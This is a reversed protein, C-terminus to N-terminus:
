KPTIQVKTDYKGPFSQNAYSPNMGIGLYLTGAKKAVITLKSGVKFEPGSDGIRGVLVGAPMDQGRYLGYNPSGDPGSMAGSGWPTMTISGEASIKLRDGVEVRIKTNKWNRGAMNSGEVAITRRLEEKALVTRDARKIDGLAVTLQGFKSAIAFQKQVVKGVVTFDTTVITDLKIMDANAAADEEDDGAEEFGEMLTKIRRVREANDDGKSRADLLKRISPGIKALEKQAAERENFEASGLAEILDTIKKGLEPLSDLGPRVSIISTVPITLKGFSTEVELDKISLKGMVTTGDMLHIRIIEPDAPPPPPAAPSEEEKDDEKKKEKEDATKAEPAKDKRGFLKLQVAPVAQVAPAEIVVDGEDALVPIAALLLAVILASMRM